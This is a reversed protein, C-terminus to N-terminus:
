LINILFYIYGFKFRYVTGVEKWVVVTTSSWNDNKYLHPMPRFFLARVDQLFLIGTFVIITGSILKYM